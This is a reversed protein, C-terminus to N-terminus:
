VWDMLHRSQVGLALNCPKFPAETFHTRLKHWKLGIPGHPGDVSVPVTASAVYSLPAPVVTM